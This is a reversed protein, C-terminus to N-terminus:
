VESSLRSMENVVQKGKDKKYIHASSPNPRYPPAGFLYLRLLDLKGIILYTTGSLSNIWTGFGCKLYGLTM